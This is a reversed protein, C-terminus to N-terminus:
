IQTEMFYNLAASTVTGDTVTGGNNPLHIEGSILQWLLLGLVFAVALLILYQLWTYGASPPPIRAAEGNGLSPGPTAAVLGPNVPLSGAGSTIAEWPPVGSPLAGGPAKPSGTASFAPRNGFIQSDDRTAVPKGGGVAKIAGSVPVSPNAILPPSPPKPRRAVIHTTSRRNVRSVPAPQEVDDNVVVAIPGTSIPKPAVMQPATDLESLAAKEAEMQAARERLTKRSPREGQGPLSSQGPLSESM